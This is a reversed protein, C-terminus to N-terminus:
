FAAFNVERGRQLTLLVCFVRNENDKFRKKYRQLSFILLM